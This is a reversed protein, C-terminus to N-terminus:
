FKGKSSSPYYRRQLALLNKKYLPKKTCPYSKNLDLDDETLDSSLDPVVCITDRRNSQEGFYLETSLSM